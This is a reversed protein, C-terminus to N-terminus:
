FALSYAIGVDELGVWLVTLSHRRYSYEVTPHLDEGDWIVTSSFGKGFGTWFGGIARLKDDFTGYSAGVYPAIPVGTSQKLSKSLTGFYAQGDPTGIRDSSTGFILAPRKETETVAIVTALPGVEDELPNYEIGV